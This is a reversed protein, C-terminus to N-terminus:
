LKCTEVKYQRVIFVTFFYRKKINMIVLDLIRMIYTCIHVDDRASSVLM